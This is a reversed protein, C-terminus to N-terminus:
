GSVPPTRQAPPSPVPQVAEPAPAEPSPTVPTEPPPQPPEPLSPEPPRTVPQALMQEFLRRFLRAEEESKVWVTCCLQELARRDRVGFGARLARLVAMYEEVGLQLGHERLRNFLELLPLEGPNM